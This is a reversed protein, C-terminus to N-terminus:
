ALSDFETTMAALTVKSVDDNSMGGSDAALTATLAASLVRAKSALVKLAELMLDRSAYGGVSEVAYIFHDNVRELKVRDTWAPERICERCLTCNRPKAVYARKTGDALEEIDFVGVPCRSILAAAEQHYFPKDDSLKISPLMRYSATCVPSFKAHDKGIGKHAIMFLDLSQGPALKTLLIDTHMTGVGSEGFKSLQDGQPEWAIEGSYVPTYKSAVDEEGELAASEAANLKYPKGVAKLTFVLSDQDSPPEGNSVFSLKRPDVKLPILGMRHSLVEDQVISTNNHVYVTEIAVSPVEALLIRRLANAIPADVGILEFEIDEDSERLVMVRLNKKLHVVFERGSASNEHQSYVPLTQDLTCKTRAAM